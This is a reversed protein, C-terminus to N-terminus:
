QTKRATEAVYMLLDRVPVDCGYWNHHTGPPKGGFYMTEDPNISGISYAPRDSCQWHSIVIKTSNTIHAIEPPCDPLIDGLCDGDLLRKTAAEAFDLKALWREAVEMSHHEKYDRTRYKTITEIENGM